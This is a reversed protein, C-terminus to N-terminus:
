SIKVLIDSQRVIKHEVDDITIEIGTFQGVVVKDGVAVENVILKGNSDKSSSVAIIEAYHVKETYDNLLVIGSKTKNEEAKIIKVVVKDALPQVIM